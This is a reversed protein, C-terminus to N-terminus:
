RKAKDAMRVNRHTEYLVIDDCKIKITLDTDILAALADDINGLFMKHLILLTEKSLEEQPAKQRVYDM